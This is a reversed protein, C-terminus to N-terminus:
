AKFSLVFRSGRDREVSLTGDIQRALGDILHMGMSDVSQLDFGEPLGVGDDAITLEVVSDVSKRLIVEVSGGSRGKFAHKLANSLLENVILGVPIATDIELHVNDAEVSAAVGPVNYMRVLDATVNRLYEKFDVKALNELQYLNEHVLSMSRIRNQSDRFLDIARPDKLTPAQLSLLSSVIQLNNKVRHHIERLMIEKEKLSLLLQEQARKQETVDRVFSIALARGQYEVYNLTMELKREAPGPQGLVAETVTVGAGKVENWLRRWTDADVSSIIDWFKRGATSDSMLGFNTRALDNLYVITGDAEAWIIGLSARDVAFQTLLLQSEARKRQRRGDAEQLERRIAPVLRKIHDKMVYDHAGSKMMSVAIDEGVTGSILIFPIDIDFERFLKLAAQGSFSPLSYDSVVLDWQEARLARTLEEATEVRQYHLDFGEKTLMRSLLIADSENDEVHLLRLPEGM